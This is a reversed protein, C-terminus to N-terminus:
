RGRSTSSAGREMPSGPALDNCRWCIGLHWGWGTSRPGVALKTRAAGLHHHCRSVRDGLRIPRSSGGLSLDDLARSTSPGKTISTCAVGPDWVKKNAKTGGGAQYWPLREVLIDSDEHGIPGSAVPHVQFRSLRGGLGSRGQRGGQSSSAELGWRAQDGPGRGIWPAHFRTTNASRRCQHWPM